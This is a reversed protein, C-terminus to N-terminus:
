EVHLFGMDVIDRAKIAGRIYGLQTMYNIMDEVVRQDLDTTFVMRNM